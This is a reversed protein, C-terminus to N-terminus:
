SAKNFLELAPIAFTGGAVGKIKTVNGMGIGGVLKAKEELTMEKLVSDISAENTLKIEDALVNMFLGIFLALIVVKNM